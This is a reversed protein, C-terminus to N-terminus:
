RSEILRKFKDAESRWQSKRPDNNAASIKAARSYAVALQQCIESHFQDWNRDKKENYPDPIAQTMIEAIPLYLGSRALKAIEPWLFAAKKPYEVTWQHANHDLFLTLFRADFESDLRDSSQRNEEFLDWRQPTSNVVTIHGDDIMASCAFDHATNQRDSRLTKTFPSRRYSFQRATFDDPSFEYGSVTCGYFEAVALPTLIFFLVLLYAWLNKMSSIENFFANITNFIGHIEVSTGCADRWRAALNAVM